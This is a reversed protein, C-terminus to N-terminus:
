TTKVLNFKMGVIVELVMYATLFDMRATEYDTELNSVNGLMQTYETLPIVGNLFQKEVM